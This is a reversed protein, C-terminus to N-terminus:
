SAAVAAQKTPIWYIEEKLNERSFGIRGLINKSHEVMGPHGCLYGLANEGSLGWMDAYKRVLDDVRGVEGRWDADDWPRSVTPIYKLWPVAAAIQQLERVYGLEWSRSAGNLLYLTHDGAFTGDQWDRYLTRAYSVFPAVGTVTCILLHKNRDGNMDLTFRGKSVRRILLPDGAKLDYLQPTLEGTPVLELFFELESEYPSSAISYAREYRKEPGVRGLTAYQGPAFKFEGGPDVRITWLDPALDVRHSIRARYFKEDPVVIM